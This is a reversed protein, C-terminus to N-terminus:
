RGATFAQYEGEQRRRQAEKFAADAVKGCYEVAEDPTLNMQRFTGTGALAAKFYALWGEFDNASSRQVDDNNQM